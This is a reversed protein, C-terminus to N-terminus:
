AGAVPLGTPQRSLSKWPLCAVSAALALSSAVGLVWVVQLFTEHWLVIGGVCGLACAILPVTVAFRGQALEFNMLVYVVSLPSLALVMGRVVPVLEPLDRGALIRLVFAPFVCCFAAGAGIILGVLLLAKLFIRGTGESVGSRSVVKPFMALAIPQPLFIVLRGAMAAMAFLGAQEPDFYHKVLLLDANMLVAYAGLVLGYRVFYTYLGPERRPAAFVGGLVSRLGAAAVFLSALMACAYGLLAGTAGLGLWVFLAAFLLSCLGLAVNVGATLFFSQLGMLVGLFIPRYLTVCIALVTVVFPAQSELNLFRTVHPSLGWAVLLLGLAVLTVDRGLGTTMGRIADKRGDQAARVTFHTVSGQLPTAIPISLIGFLRLFATFVGFDEVRVLMRMMVIQFLLNLLNALQGGFMMVLSHRILRDQEVGPPTLIPGMYRNYLDVVWSFPSYLLRLRVLALFMELSASLVTLKSGAVDHWVTPIEVIRAGARRLQFLLDVDFAWRTVGLTPLVQRLRDGRFLKAGCQTDTLPLGFAVRVFFNFFRSAVQRLFPQRPSVRAGRRWRSAIVVDAGDTRDVLDQFAEPPTSGDADSFGVWEGQAQAFGLMLAGGKGVRRPEVIWRLNPYRPAFSAVVSETRDTSGNIVVIFEVEQAYRASFFSLYSELMRGIRLEENHAPVVITLKM